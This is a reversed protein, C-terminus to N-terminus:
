PGNSGGCVVATQGCAARKLLKVPGARDVCTEWIPKGSQAEAMRLRTEAHPRYSFNLKRRDIVVRAASRDAPIALAAAPQFCGKVGGHIAEFRQTVTRRCIRHNTDVFRANAAMLQM